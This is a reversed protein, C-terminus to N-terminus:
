RNWRRLGYVGPGSMQTLVEKLKTLWTKLQGDRKRRWHLFPVPQIVDRIFDGAPRRAAHGFWRLRRQPLTPPLARLHLQHLGATSSRPYPPLLWQWFSQSLASGRHAAALNWLRLAPYDQRCVWSCSRKPPALNGTEVPNLTTSQQVSGAGRQHMGKNWRNCPWFGHIDARPVQILLGKNACNSITHLQPVSRSLTKCSFMSLECETPDCALMAAFLIIVGFALMNPQFFTIFFVWSEHVFEYREAESRDIEIRNEVIQENAKECWCVYILHAIEVIFIRIFMNSNLFDCGEFHSVGWDAVNPTSFLPLSYQDTIRRNEKWFISRSKSWQFGPGFRGIKLSIRPWFMKGTMFAILPPEVDLWWLLFIARGNINEVINQHSCIYYSSISIVLM